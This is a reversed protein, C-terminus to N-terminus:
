NYILYLLWMPIAHVLRPNKWSVEIQTVIRKALEEASSYKPKAVAAATAEVGAAGAADDGGAM